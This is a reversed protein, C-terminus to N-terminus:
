WFFSCSDYDPETGKIFPYHVTKECGQDTLQGTKSDVWHWGVDAPLPAEWGRPRLRKMLQGWVQLAGRSGSLGAPTNDDRGLWVVGLLDRGFGAFWSDRLDDTSGTKGAMAPRGPLQKYVSRGTGERYAQQLLTNLVYMPATEFVQAVSIRYRSLPKHDPGTVERIVRLPSHFGSAAFTQYMQSVQLPTLNIAGLLLSPYPRIADEIGARQLTDIVKHLGVELGLNVTALNLSRALAQHLPVEGNATGDFNDPQWLGGDPEKLTLPQDKLTSVATFGGNKGLATLYVAPKVLSGIQRKALLARNFGAAKAQRDGVVALIESTMPNSVIIAGQLRGATLRHQKELRSIHGIAQEAASQAGPDLTTYINLGESRLDDERYDKALERRVLDIFAPYRSVATSPKPTVGLHSHKATQAQQESIMGQQLMLDIVLDRRQKVREPHKRPHYYSAGKVMGVLTAVESLRLDHLPRAFYYQAALGFGHIAHRGQQGLYIENIYAGIIEAKSYRLELLMAMVAETLKRSLTREATLFYNKVLQQTLTSGGQVADGARINRWLARAIGRLSIGHHHFFERDETAVLADILLTPVKDPNVLVRDENHGPYIRGIVAPELRILPAPEGDEVALHDIVGNKLSLRFRRAPEAEDAFPFGHTQIVYHSGHRSFYGARRVVEVPRYGVLKLEDELQRGSIVRGPYLELPRSYLRAPIQWRKGEFALQIRNDLWAVYLAALMLLIGVLWVLLRKVPFNRGTKKKRPRSKATKKRAM